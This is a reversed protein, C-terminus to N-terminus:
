YQPSHDPASPTVAALCAPDELMTNQTVLSVRDQDFRRNVFRLSGLEASRPGGRVHALGLYDPLPLRFLAPNERVAGHFGFLAVLEDSAAM